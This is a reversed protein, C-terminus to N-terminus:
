KVQVVQNITACAQDLQVSASLEQVEGSAHLEIAGFSTDPYIRCARFFLNDDAKAIVQYERTVLFTDTGEVVGLLTDTRGRSPGAAYTVICDYCRAELSVTYEKVEKKCSGILLALAVMGLCTKDMPQFTFRESPIAALM